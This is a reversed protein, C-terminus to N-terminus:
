EGRHYPGHFRTTETVSVSGDESTVTLEVDTGPTSMVSADVRLRVPVNRQEGSAIEIREPDTDATIGPLGSASVTYTHAQQSMNLVKVDYVNEIRGGDLERYLANRDPLIDVRMPTRMAVATLTGTILALLLVSYVIVRPRLIRTPKGELTNETTYRILGRPYGMKDMVQDCADICAGCAICEYQLGDRIDIGTPCVQVCLTCDICDGLGLEAPDAGRKRPGRPEGRAEDYSIVLTDRDFMASQFRAYPCMYLCVNERMFGANGWTAFGYFVLWFTEWPGLDLTIVRLSLERIPTFFGM